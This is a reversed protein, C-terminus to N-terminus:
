PKAESEIADVIKDALNISARLIIWWTMSESQMVKKTIYALMDIMENAIETNTDREDGTKLPQGHKAQGWRDREDVLALLRKNRGLHNRLIPFVEEGADVIQGVPISHALNTDITM